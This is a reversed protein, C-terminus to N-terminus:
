HALLQLRFFCVPWTEATYYKSFVLALRQLYSFIQDKGKKVVAGRQGDRRIGWRGWGGGRGFM